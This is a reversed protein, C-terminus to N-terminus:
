LANLMNGWIFHQCPFIIHPNKGMWSQFEGILAAQGDSGLAVSTAGGKHGCALEGNLEGSSMRWLRTTRNRGGSAIVDHDENMAVSLVSWEHGVLPDGIGRGSEVDWPRTMGDISKLVM